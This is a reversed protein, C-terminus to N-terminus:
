SRYWCQRADQDTLLGPAPDVTGELGDIQAHMGSLPLASFIRIRRTIM